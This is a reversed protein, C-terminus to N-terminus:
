FSFAVPLSCEDFVKGTLPNASSELTPDWGLLGQARFSPHM